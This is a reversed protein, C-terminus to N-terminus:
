YFSKSSITLSNAHEKPSKEPEALLLSIVAISDAGADLAAQATEASIGGIAVLPKEGVIARVTKL